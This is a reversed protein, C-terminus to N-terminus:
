HEPLRIIAENTPLASVYEWGQTVWNKVEKLPVVKQSNGNLGLSQMTKKQVMEQMQESSLQSLDGLKGIEEDSYGAMKLFQENFTQVMTKKEIEVRATTQLYKEASKSYADRMKEIVDEPLRKSVTYVAEIDGKHGMWFVRWDRIIFGDAEAMMLRTDFYRRLVYPRWDFGADTIRNRIVDGINTTRIHHGAYAMKSPTIIPSETTLKEGARLRLGLYEKLYSCGEQCLFTFYQKKTKSLNRRVVVMAPTASFDVSDKGLIIEPFDKAKLGDNGLYNGLVELRLGSFAVLSAASRMRMDAANFIKKLEQPM